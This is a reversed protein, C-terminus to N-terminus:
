NGGTCVAQPDRGVFVTDNEAAVCVDPCDNIFDDLMEPTVIIPTKPEFSDFLTPWIPEHVGAGDAEDGNIPATNAGAFLEPHRYMDLFPDYYDANHSLPPWVFPANM